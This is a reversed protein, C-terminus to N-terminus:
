QLVKHGPVTFITLEGRNIIRDGQKHRPPRYGKSLVYRGLQDKVGGPLSIETGTICNKWTGDCM